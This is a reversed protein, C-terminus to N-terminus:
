RQPVVEMWYGDPDEIFYLGMEKNEFCIVGMERHKAYAADFDDAVFCIHSENDGLEYPTEKDALWTLELRYTGIDDTLFVISFRGKEDDRRRVVRLGLAEEYFRISKDLDFVNINAHDIRFKM